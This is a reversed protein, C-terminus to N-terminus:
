TLHPSVSTMDALARKAKPILLPCSLNSADFEKDFSMM